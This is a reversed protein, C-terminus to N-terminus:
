ACGTRNHWAKVSCPGTETRHAPRLLEQSFVIGVQKDYERWREESWAKTPAHDRYCAEHVTLSRSVMYRTEWWPIGDTSDGCWYCVDEASRATTARRAPKQVYNIGTFTSSAM